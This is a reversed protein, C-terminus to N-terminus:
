AAPRPSRTTTEVPVPKPWLAWGIAVAILIVALISVIRGIM